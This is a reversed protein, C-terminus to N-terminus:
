YKGWRGSLVHNEISEETFSEEVIESGSPNLVVERDASISFEDGSESHSLLELRNTIIPVCDTAIPDRERARYVIEWEERIAEVIAAQDHLLLTGKDASVNIDIRDVPIELYLFYVPYVRSPLNLKDIFFKRFFSMFNPVSGPRKNVILISSDKNARTVMSTQKGGCPIYGTISFNERHVYTHNLGDLVSKGFLLTIASGLDDVKPLQLISHADHTFTFRFSPHAIKYSKIIHTIRKIEERGNSTASLLQRRVPLNSFINTVTIRTGVVLPVPHSSVLNGDRDFSHRAGVEEDATRSSIELTAISCISHLAEGRFGYSSIQALDEYKTLKTTHYRKCVLSIDCKPIGNGNDVIQVKNLGFKELIVEVHEAGADLANEILEKVLSSVCTIIQGSTLLQVTETPLHIM